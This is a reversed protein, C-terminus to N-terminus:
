VLDRHVSKLGCGVTEDAGDVAYVDREDVNGKTKDTCKANSRLLINAFRFMSALFCYECSPYSSFCNNSCSRPARTM